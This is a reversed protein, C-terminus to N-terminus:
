RQAAGLSSAKDSFSALYKATQTTQDIIFNLEIGKTNILEASSSIRNGTEMQEELSLSMQNAFGESNTALEDIDQLSKAAEQSQTFSSQVNTNVGSMADMVLNVESSIDDSLQTIKNTADRTSSALSRVEDAVVAFGRGHEGARAAEIAANLALLNTQEAINIIVDVLVRTETAYKGLLDVQNEAKGVLNIVSKMENEVSAVTDCGTVSAKRSEQAAQKADKSNNAVVNISTSMEEINAVISQLSEAQAQSERKSDEAQSHLENAAHQMEFILAILKKEKRKLYRFAKAVYFATDGLEGTFSYSESELCNKNKVNNTMSQITEIGKTQDLYLLRISLIFLLTNFLVVGMVVSPDMNKWYPSEYILITNIVPLIGILLILGLKLKLSTEAYYHKLKM